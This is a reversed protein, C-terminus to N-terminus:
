VYRNDTKIGTKHLDNDVVQCNYDVQINKVCNATAPHRPTFTRGDWIAEDIVASKLHAALPTNPEQKRCTHSRESIVERIDHSDLATLM